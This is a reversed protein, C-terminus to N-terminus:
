EWDARAVMLVRGDFFATDFSMPLIWSSVVRRYLWISGSFFTSAILRM